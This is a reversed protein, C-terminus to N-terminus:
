KGAIAAGAKVAAWVAYVIGSVLTGIATAAIVNRAHGAFSYMSRLFAFHSQVSIPDKIDLGLAMFTEAVAEKAALKALEKMEYTAM